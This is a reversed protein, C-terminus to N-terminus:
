PSYNAFLTPGTDKRLLNEDANNPSAITDFNKNFHSSDRMIDKYATDENLKPTLLEGNDDHQESNADLHKTPSM